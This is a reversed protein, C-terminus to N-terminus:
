DSDINTLNESAWTIDRKTHYIEFFKNLCLGVECKPCWFRTDRRVGRKWCRVCRRQARAKGTTSPVQAIFHREVLRILNANAPNPNLDTAYNNSNPFAPFMIIEEVVAKRFLLHDEKRAPNIKKWLIYSNYICIDIFLEALKRYWKVGRHQVAYPILV